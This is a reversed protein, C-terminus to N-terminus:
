LAEVDAFTSRADLRDSLVFRGSASFLLIVAMAAMAVAFGNEAGYIDIMQGTIAAGIATGTNLGSLRWTLGEALKAEPVMEVITMAIIMTPAFFLGAVFVAIALAAIDGVVLLPLTTAATALGSILLLRPLPVGLKLAGFGLGAICLGAAYASLVTSATAPRDQLQAFAVSGIDVTGVGGMAGLLLALIM